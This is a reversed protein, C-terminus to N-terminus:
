TRRRLTRITHEKAFISMSGAMNKRLGRLRNEERAWKVKIGYSSCTGLKSFTRLKLTVATEGRMPWASIAQMGM